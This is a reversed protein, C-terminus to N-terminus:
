RLVSRASFAFCPGPLCIFILWPFCRVLGLSASQSASSSTVFLMSSRWCSRKLSLYHFVKGRLAWGDVSLQWPVSSAPQFLKCSPLNFSVLCKLHPNCSSFTQLFSPPRNPRRPQHFSIRATSLSAGFDLHSRVVFCSTGGGFITLTSSGPPKSSNTM